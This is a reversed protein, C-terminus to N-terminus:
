NNYNKQPKIFPHPITYFKKTNVIIFILKVQNGLHHVGISLNHQINILLAKVPKHSM